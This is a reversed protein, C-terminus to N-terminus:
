EEIAKKTKSILDDFTEAIEFNFFKANLIVNAKKWYGDPCLVIAKKEGDKVKNAVVGMEFLSIPAKGTPDFYFVVIDALGLNTLEWNVQEQLYPNNESYEQSVDFDLRRPNLITINFNSFEEELKPQWNEAKGMDISGALFIKKRNKSIPTEEPAKIIIASM